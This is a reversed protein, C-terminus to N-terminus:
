WCTGISPMASRTHSSPRSRPPDLLELIGRTVVIRANSPHHGYTFANPAGDEIIGFRPFRIRHKAAVREVFARLHAPLEGPEVWRCHLLWRLSLDM